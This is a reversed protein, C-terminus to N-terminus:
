APALATNTRVDDDRFTENTVDYGLMFLAAEVRRMGDEGKCWDAQSLRIAERVIWNAQVNCRAWHEPGYSDHSLKSFTFGNKSPNRNRSSKGKSWRFALEDPVTKLLTETPVSELYLRVLYGLAAGVRSDYIISLTTTLSFYKTWTANMTFGYKETSGFVQLDPEDACIATRGKHLFEDRRAAAKVDKVRHAQCPFGWREISDLADETAQPGKPTRELAIADGVSQRLRILVSVNDDFLGGDWWYYGFLDELTAAFVTQSGFKEFFGSKRFRESSSFTVTFDLRVEGLIIKALFEVFGQVHATGLYSTRTLRKNSM